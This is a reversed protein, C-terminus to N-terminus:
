FYEGDLESQEDETIGGQENQATFACTKVPTNYAPDDAEDIVCRDPIDLAFYEDPSVTRSLTYEVAGVAGLSGITEHEKQCALLQGPFEPSTGQTVTGGSVNVGAADDGVVVNLNNINPGAQMNGQGFFFWLVTLKQGNIYAGGFSIKSGGAGDVGKTQDITPTCLLCRSNRYVIKRNRSSSCNKNYDLNDKFGLVHVGASVLELVPKEHDLVPTGDEELQIDGDEDYVFSSEGLIHLYVRGLSDPRVGNIQNVLNRVMGSELFLSCEPIPSVMIAPDHELRIVMSPVVGEGDYYVDEVSCVVGKEGQFLVNGSILDEGVRFGSVSSPQYRYVLSELIEGTDADLTVDMERSKNRAVSGFSVFGHIAASSTTLQYMRYPEPNFVELEGLLGSAGELSVEVKAYENTVILRSVYVRKDVPAITRPFTIHFDVIGGYDGPTARDSFPYSRADNRYLWSTHLITM